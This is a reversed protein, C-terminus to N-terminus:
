SGSYGYGGGGPTEIIVEDGEELDTTFKGPMREIGTKRAITIASAEGPEGGKLGRPHNRFREGIVSLKARSTVTFSRVIGDGGRYKGNGGSGRRLTNSTFRVPYEKEAVEVPTNLTNTMNSHIGSVGDSSPRGGTGGGITEYYAWFLGNGRPGGMMVNMMTGSSEAPIRDPMAMGLALLVADAVRQTTEVNGGSVPHPKDPNLISGPPAKMDVTSYFGENVPVTSKMASRVSYATASYTVGTVANLPAPVQRGTGEFDAKVRGGKIELRVKIKLDEEGLELCDESEYTGGPWLSIENESLSRSHEIAENWGSKTSEPSFRGCLAKVRSIGMRNAALQANIDGDATRRDKFNERIMSFIESNVSGKRVIRVPPIVLGEEYLTTAKPNLSGFVPGGVDVNHAKNIVYAFLSGGYYVPALVTVDNLHTGSIYPDNLLLMDGDELDLRESEMWELLNHSGTRFSGLHVPIHEAQAVIRGETDLVACSHDMRERINPSIASRKLAIGMEEAVFETAKGIIEWGGPM